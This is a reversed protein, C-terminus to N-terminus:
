ARAKYRLYVPSKPKATLLINRDPFPPKESSIVGRKDSLGFEFSAIFHAMLIIIELTALRM